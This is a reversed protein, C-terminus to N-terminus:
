VRVYQFGVCCTSTTGASYTPSRSVAAATANLSRSRRPRSRILRPDSTNGHHRPVSSTSTEAQDLDGLVLAVEENREELVPDVVELPLDVRVLALFQKRRVRVPLPGNPSELVLQVLDGVGKLSDLVRS